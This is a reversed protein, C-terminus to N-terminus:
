IREVNRGTDGASPAKPTVKKFGGALAIGGVGLGLGLMVIGQVLGPTAGDDILVVNESVLPLERRFKEVERADCVHVRGTVETRAALAAIRTLAEPSKSSVAAILDAASMQIMVPYQSQPSAGKARVPVYLVERGIRLKLLHDADVTIEKLTVFTPLSNAPTEQLTTVPPTRYRVAHYLNIVGSYVCVLIFGSVLIIKLM